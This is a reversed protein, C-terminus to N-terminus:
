GRLPLEFKGGLSDMVQQSVTNWTPNTITKGELDLNYGCKRYTGVIATKKTTQAVGGVVEVTDMQKKEMLLAIDVFRHTNGLGELIREGTVRSEIKTRGQMDTVPIEERKDTLHHSVALNKHLGQATTYIDRMSDNPAAWEIQQLRERLDKKEARAKEQLSQLYSDAKIRRALTMTDIVTTAVNNDMMAESCLYIFKEWLERVGVIEIGMFQIPAPFEFITIDDGSTKWLTESKAKPDYKVISISLNDFFERRGGYLAREVGMDFQFGVIPLPATYLFTTKGNSEEGEVSIITM